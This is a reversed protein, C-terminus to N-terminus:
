DREVAETDLIRSIAHFAVKLDIGKVQSSQDPM